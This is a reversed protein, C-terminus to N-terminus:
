RLCEECFLGEIVMFAFAGAYLRVGCHSCTGLAALVVTVPMDWERLRWLQDAPANLRDIQPRCGAMLQSGRCHACQGPHLDSLECRPTM